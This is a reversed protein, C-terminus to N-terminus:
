MTGIICLSFNVSHNNKSGYDSLYTVFNTYTSKFKILGPQYNQATPDRLIKKTYIVWFISIFFKLKDTM